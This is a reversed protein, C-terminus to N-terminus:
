LGGKIEAFPVGDASEVSFLYSSPSDFHAPGLTQYKRKAADKFAKSYAWPLWALYRVAAPAALQLVVAGTDPPTASHHSCM